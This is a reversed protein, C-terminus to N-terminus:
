IPATCGKGDFCSAWRVPSRAGTRRRSSASDTGELVRLRYEATFQRRKPKAAVEPDPRAPAGAGTAPVEDSREEAGVVPAPLGKLTM